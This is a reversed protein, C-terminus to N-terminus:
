RSCNWIWCMWYNLFFFKPLESIISSAIWVWCLFYCCIKGLGSHVPAVLGGWSDPGVFSSFMSTPNVSTVVSYECQEQARCYVLVLASHPLAVPPFFVACSSTQQCHVGNKKTLVLFLKSSLQTICQLVAPHISYIISPNDTCHPWLFPCYFSCSNM